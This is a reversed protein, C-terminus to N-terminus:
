KGCDKAEQENAAFCKLTQQEIVHRCGSCFNSGTGGVELRYAPQGGCGNTACEGLRSDGNLNFWM